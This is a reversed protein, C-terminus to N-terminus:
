SDSRSIALPNFEFSFGARPRSHVLRRGAEELVQKVQSQRGVVGFHNGAVQFLREVAGCGRATSASGRTRVARLDGTDEEGPHPM